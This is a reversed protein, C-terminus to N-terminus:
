QRKEWSRTDCWECWVDDSESYVLYGPECGRCYYPHTDIDCTGRMKKIDVSTPPEDEYFYTKHAVEDAADECDFEQELTLTIRYLGRTSPVGGYVRPEPKILKTGCEGCFVLYSGWSHGCSANPCRIFSM